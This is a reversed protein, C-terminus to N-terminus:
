WCKNNEIKIIMTMKIPIIHYTKKFYTIQLYKRTTQPKGKYSKVTKKKWLANTGLKSLTQVGKSTM